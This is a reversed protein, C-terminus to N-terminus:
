FHFDISDRPDIMTTTVSRTDVNTLVVKANPIVSGAPDTVSGVIDGTTSTQAHLLQGPTAMLGLVLLASVFRRKLLGVPRIVIQKLTVERSM